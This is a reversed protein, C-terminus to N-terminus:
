LTSTTVDSNYSTGNDHNDKDTIDDEAEQLVEFPNDGPSKATVVSAYLVGSRCGRIPSWQLNPWKDAFNTIASEEKKPSFSPHWKRLQTNM